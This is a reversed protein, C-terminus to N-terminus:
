DRVQRAEEAFHDYELGRGSILDLDPLAIAGHEEHTAETPGHFERLGTVTDEMVTVSVRHAHGTAEGEALVGSTVKRKAM